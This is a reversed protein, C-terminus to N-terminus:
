KEPPSSKESGKVQSILMKENDHLIGTETQVQLNQMESYDWMWPPAEPTTTPKFMPGCDEQYCAECSLGEWEAEQLLVQGEPTM